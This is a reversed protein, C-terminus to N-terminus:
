VFEGLRVGSPCVMECRLCTLCQWLAEQALTDEGDGLLLGEVLRRPSFADEWRAVPCSATCKGCALCYYARTEALAARLAVDTM